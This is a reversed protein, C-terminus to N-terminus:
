SPRSVQTVTLKPANKKIRAALAAQANIASAGQLRAGRPLATKTPQTAVAATKSKTTTSSSRKGKAPAPKAAKAASASTGGSARCIARGAATSAHAHGKHNIRAM